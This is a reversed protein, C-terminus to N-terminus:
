PTVTRRLIVAAGVLSVFAFGVLIAGNWAGLANTDFGEFAHQAGAIAYSLPFLRALLQIPKTEFTVPGLPGSVFFLPLASALTVTTILRRQKMGIGLVTGLASFIIVTVISYGIMETPHTLRAGLPGLLIPVVLMGSGLALFFASLMKGVILCWRPAPSFLLEKMTQLEWERAWSTGAQIAGALSLALIVISVGLYPIYGTDYTYWDDESAMVQVVRPFARAYFLTISLPVARRIDATFDTTLNNIQVPVEVPLHNAIRRDFSPPITVVAVINGAELQAQAEQAPTQFLHFSHADELSKYLLQAYPGHDQMVVATPGQDGPLVFLIFLCLYQLPILVLTALFIRETVTTFFDKKACALIVQLYSRFPM